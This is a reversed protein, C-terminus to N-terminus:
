IIQQQSMTTTPTELWDDLSEEGDEEEAAPTEAADEAPAEETVETTEVVAEAPAEVTVAETAEKLAEKVVNGVSEVVSGVAEGVVGEEEVVVTEEVAEPAKAEVDPVALWLASSAGILAVSVVLAIKLSQRISLSAAYKGILMPVIIGGSLGIAFILGFVSGGTGAAIADTKAFCVGVLTPFIPGFSFGALLTGLIGLSPKSAFVMIAISACAVIALVPVIKAADINTLFIATILRAMMLSIWFASLILGSKKDSLEHSKLYTTLFGAMSSELAIYCFLSIGGILVAPHTLLGISDGIVFGADPEPFKALITFVIPVFLLLGIFSVTKKYGMTGLLTAIIMPALFAGLGFFVNLLNSARAPDKGDFLTSLGLTNGVTNVCMAAIGLLLCAILATRYSRASALLLVCAGGLIFGTLAIWKFGVMDTLPGIVLVAVLCSFMLASILTGVKADDIKLEEALKLKVSGLISFIIGLSFVGSFAVLMVFSLSSM